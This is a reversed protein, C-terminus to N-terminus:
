GFLVILVATLVMAGAVVFSGRVFQAQDALRQREADSRRRRKIRQLEDHTVYDSNSIM